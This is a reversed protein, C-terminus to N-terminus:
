MRSRLPKPFVSFGERLSQPFLNIMYFLLLVVAFTLQGLAFPLVGIDLSLTSGVIASGCVAICKCVTALSEASARTKYLMRQQVIAFGPEALLEIVSALGYLKLSQSLYPFATVETKSYFIGFLFALPAGIIVALYSANVVIQTRGASSEHDIPSDGQKKVEENDRHSSSSPQRQLAVRLSERAFYLVSISYLELQTSIGLLSPSLYRILVQNLAFTLLRSLFQVLVLYSAGQVSASLLSSPMTSLFYEVVGSARWFTTEETFILGLDRIESPFLHASDNNGM